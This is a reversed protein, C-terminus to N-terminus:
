IGASTPRGECIAYGCQVSHICILHTHHLSIAELQFFFFSFCFFPSLKNADGGEVTCAELLYVERTHCPADRQVDIPM